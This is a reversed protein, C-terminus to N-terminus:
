PLNPPSRIQLCLQPPLPRSQRLRHPQRQQQLGSRPRQRGQGRPYLSPLLLMLSQWDKHGSRGAEAQPNRRTPTPFSLRSSRHAPCPRRRHTHRGGSRVGAATRAGKPACFPISWNIRALHLRSRPACEVRQGHRRMVSSECTRIICVAISITTTPIILYRDCPCPRVCRVVFTM